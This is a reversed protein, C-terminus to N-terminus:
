FVENKKKIEFGVISTRINVVNNSKIEGLIKSIGYHDKADCFDKEKYNGKTGLFVCDTSIHIIKFKLKHSNIELYKPLLSNTRYMSDVSSKTNKLKGICNIVINPKFKNLIKKLELYNNADIDFFGKKKGIGSLKYKKENDLYKYVQHGLMGSVGLILIKIRKEM